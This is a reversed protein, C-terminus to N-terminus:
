AAPATHTQEALNQQTINKLTLQSGDGEVSIEITDGMKFRATKRGITQMSWIGDRQVTVQREADLEYSLVLQITRVTIVYLNGNILLAFAPYNPAFLPNQTTVETLPGAKPLPILPKIRYLENTQSFDNAISVQGLTRTNNKFIFNTDQVAIASQGLCVLIPLLIKQTFKM